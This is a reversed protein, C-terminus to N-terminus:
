GAKRAAVADINAASMVLSATHGCALYGRVYSAPTETQKLDGQRIVSVVDRITSHIKCYATTSIM